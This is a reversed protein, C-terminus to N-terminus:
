RGSGCVDKLRATFVTQPMDKMHEESRFEYLNEKIEQLPSLIPVLDHGATITVKFTQSPVYKSASATAVAFATALFVLKFVLKSWMM